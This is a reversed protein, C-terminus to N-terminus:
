KTKKRQYVYAALLYNGSTYPWGRLSARGLPVTTFATGTGAQPVFESIPVTPKTRKTKQPDHGQGYRHLHRGHPADIAYATAERGGGRGAQTGVGVILGVVLNQVVVAALLRVRSGAKAAVLGGRCLRQENPRQRARQEEKKRGERGGEWEPKVVVTDPAMASRAVKPAYTTCEKRMVVKMHSDDPQTPVLPHRASRAPSAHGNCPGGSAELTSVM